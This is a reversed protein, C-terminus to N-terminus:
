TFVRRNAALFDKILISLFLQVLRSPEFFLEKSKYGTSYLAYIYV